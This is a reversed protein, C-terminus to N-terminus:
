GFKFQRSVKSSIQQGKVLDHLQQRWKLISDDQIPKQWLQDNTVINFLAGIQDGRTPLLRQYVISNICQQLYHRDVKLQSLRDIAGEPSQAHVTSLVLHGSLAAQVAASATDADRIEGIIFIDPRHRLGVKLLRQYNMGAKLNIQLQLFGSKIIEVPDEITMVMKQHGLDEALQYISTTKGSGTPGVFLMLGRRQALSRLRTFQEPILFNLRQNSLSKIIRIVMSEHNYFDGVTSFRLFYQKNFVASGLQPRRHESINMGGHFKCYNICQQGQDLSLRHQIILKNVMRLKVVYGKSNPLFYVDSVQHEVSFQWLNTLLKEIKIEDGELM